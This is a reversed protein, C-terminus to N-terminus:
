FLSFIGPTRQALSFSSDQKFQDVPKRPLQPDMIKYGELEISKLYHGSEVAMSISKQPSTKDRCILREKQPGYKECLM